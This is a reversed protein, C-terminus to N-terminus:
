GDVRQEARVPAHRYGKKSIEFMKKIETKNTGDLLRIFLKGESSDLSTKLDRWIMTELDDPPYPRSARVVRALKQKAKDAM